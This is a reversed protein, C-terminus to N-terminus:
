DTCGQGFIKLSIRQLFVQMEGQFLICKVWCVIACWGLLSKIKCNIVAIKKNRFGSIKGAAVDFGQLIVEAVRNRADLSLGGIAFKDRHNGVAQPQLHPKARSPFEAPSAATFYECFSVGACAM